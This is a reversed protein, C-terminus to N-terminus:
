QSKQDSLIKRYIDLLDNDNILDLDEKKFGASILQSRLESPSINYLQSLIEEESLQTQSNNDLVSSANNYSAEASTQSSNEATNSTSYCNQGEPCLPDKKYVFVEEYDSLGDGDTDELYPSTGYVFLEDWDSISDGDTDVLKLDLNESSLKDENSCNGDACTSSVSSNKSSNSNKVEFPKGLKDNLNVFFIIIILLSFASLVGLAIKRDKSMNVEDKQKDYDM